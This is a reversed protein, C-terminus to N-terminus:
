FKVTVVVALHDSTYINKEEGSATKITGYGQSIRHMVVPLDASVFCFDIRSNSASRESPYNDGQVSGDFWSNWSGPNGSIRKAAFHSDRYGLGTVKEYIESFPEDNFDGTIVVHADPYSAKLQEIKEQVMSFQKLREFTRLKTLADSIYESNQSRHQLHTNVYILHQGNDELVVYNMLRAALYNYSSDMVVTEGADNIYQKRSKRFESENSNRTLMLRAMEADTLAYEGTGNLDEMTIAVAGAAGTSTLWKTGKEVCNMSSKYFIACHENNGSIDHSYFSTYGELNINELWTTSDEQLGLIDPNHMQIEARLAAIRNLAPETLVGSTKPLTVWVNFSMIKLDVPEREPDPATTSGVTTQVTTSVPAGSGTCAVMAFLMAATLLVILCKKM